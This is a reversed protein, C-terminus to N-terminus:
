SQIATKLARKSKPLRRHPEVAPSEGNAMWEDYFEIKADILALAETWHIINERVRVQHGALLARRQELMADGQKALTTYERMQTISMGTCRLREMLDLWRIHHESYVRRGGSDRVVDPILGQTEYWRIAHISRGTRSAMEGIRLHQQMNREGSKWFPNADRNNRASRM